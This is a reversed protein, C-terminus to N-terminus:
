RCVGYIVNDKHIQLYKEFYYNYIKHNDLKPQIIRDVYVMNGSADRLTKYIGSGVAACVASGLCAVEVTKTISIPINCVDAIIQLFENSKTGGGGARMMKVEFGRNSLDKLMFKIGYAIGEYIAKLIHEKTTNLNLGSIVSKMKPECLPSRNGGQFYPIFIINGSGPPISFLRKDMFEYISSEEKEAEQKELACFNDIFWNIVAGTSILGGAIISLGKILSNKYPGWNGYDEIVVNPIGYINASTGLILAVESSPKLINLGIMAAYSDLAGQSVIVNPSLGWKDVLNKKLRGISEGTKVIKSPLKKIIDELGIQKLLNTPWGYEVSYNWKRIVNSISATWTDTLKYNLWDICDVIKGQNYIEPENEKLWMAKPIMVEPSIKGNITTPISEKIRNIQETQKGARVDMWLLANRLPNGLEDVCVVTCSTASVGIGKIGDPNVEKLCEQVSHNLANWWDQPNQEAWGPHPYFTSYNKSASTIIEGKSNFIGVKVSQTGVDIGMLYSKM